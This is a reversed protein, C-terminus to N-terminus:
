PHFAAIVEGVGRQLEALRDGLDRGDGPEITGGEILQLSGAHCDVVGYGTAHLSPDVSLIRM